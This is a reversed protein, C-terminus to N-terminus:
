LLHMARKFLTVAATVLITGFWMSQQSLLWHSTKFLITVYTSYFNFTCFGFSSPCFYRLGM